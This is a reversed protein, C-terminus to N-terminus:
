TTAFWTVLLGVLSLVGFATSFIQQINLVGPSDNDERTAQLALRGLAYLGLASLFVAGPLPHQNWISVAGFLLLVALGAELLQTPIRRQWVGRHNRLYFAFRGETPRGSCCGHLLCGFRGFVLWLLVAFTAVDWFSALSIEIAALLPVSTAVALLLGGQLSAGGESRRWIRGPGFRYLKWHTAVFLLRAGVLGPITLLVMAIFVRSSDLGALNAAYNGAVIGLMLGTSQMAPYSHIRIGHWDFLIPLM